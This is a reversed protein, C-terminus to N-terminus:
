RASISVGNSKLLRLIIIHSPPLSCFTVKVVTVSRALTTAIATSYVPSQGTIPPMLPLSRDRFSNTASPSCSRPVDFGSATHERSLALHASMGVCSGKFNGFNSYVQQVRSLADTWPNRLHLM